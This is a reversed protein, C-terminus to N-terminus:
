EVKNAGRTKGPAKPKEEKVPKEVKAKKVENLEPNNLIHVIQGAFANAKKQLEYAEKTLTQVVSFSTREPTAGTPSFMRSETAIHFIHKEHAPIQYDYYEKAFYPDRIADGANNAPIMEVQGHLQKIRLEEVEEHTMGHSQIIKSKDM